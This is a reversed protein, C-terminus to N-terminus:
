EAAIRGSQLENLTAMNKKYDPSQPHTSSLEAIMSRSLTKVPTKGSARGSGETTGAQIRAIREPDSSDKMIKRAQYLEYADRASAPNNIWGKEKVIGIIGEQTERPLESWDKKGERRAIDDQQREWMGYVTLKETKELKQKLADNEDKLPRILDEVYRRPSASIKRLEEREDVTQTEAVPDPETSFAELKQSIAEFREAMKTEMDALKRTMEAQLNQLPVGRADTEATSSGAGNVDDKNPM